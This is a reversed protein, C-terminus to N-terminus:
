RRLSVRLSTMGVIGSATILMLLVSVAVLTWGMGVDAQYREKRDQEMSTTRISMPTPSALRMATEADKMLRDREGPAARVTYISTNFGTLRVPLIVSTEGSEGVQASTSQLREVVGVIRVGQADSGSGFYITKGLYSSADPFAKKALAKTVIVVSVFKKSTTQDIEQVDDPTFDRGEVLQLGWTKVLSDPSVYFSANGTNEVQDPSLFFSSTSGNNSLPHQSTIAVSQVGPLARLLATERAQNALEEEHTAKPLNRAVIYFISSEDAVGSPRSAVTQRLNVVHLANALIALSIAVQLAVLVAGTKSRMLSSWIPRLELNM